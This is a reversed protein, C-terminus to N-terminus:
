CTLANNKKVLVTLGNYELLNACQKIVKILIIIETLIIIKIVIIIKNNMLVKTTILM